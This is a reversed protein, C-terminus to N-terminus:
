VGTLASPKFVVKCECGGVWLVVESVIVNFISCGSTDPCRVLHFVPWCAHLMNCTTDCGRDNQTNTVGVPTLHSHHSHFTFCYLCGFSEACSHPTPTTTTPGSVRKSKHGKVRLCPMRWHSLEHGGSLHVGSLFPGQGNYHVTSIYHTHTHTRTQTHTVAYFEERSERPCERLM